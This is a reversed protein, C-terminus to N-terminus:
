GPADHPVVVDEAEVPAPGSLDGVQDGALAEGHQNRVVEPALSGLLVGDVAFQSYEDLSLGVPFLQLFVPLLHHEGVGLTVPAGAEAGGASAPAGVHNDPPM